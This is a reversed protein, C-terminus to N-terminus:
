FLDISNVDVFQNPLSNEVNFYVNIRRYNGNIKIEQKCLLLLLLLLPSIRDGEVASEGGLVRRQPRVQKTKLIKYWRSNLVSPWIIIIIKLKM